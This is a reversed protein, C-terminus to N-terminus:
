AGPPHVRHRKQSAIETVVGGVAGIAGGVLGGIPGGLTAGILAGGSAFVVGSAPISFLRDVDSKKEAAQNAM